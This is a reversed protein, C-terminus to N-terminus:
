RINGGHPVRTLNAKSECTNTCALFVYVFMQKEKQSLSVEAATAALM